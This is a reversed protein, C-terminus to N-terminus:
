KTFFLLLIVAQKIISHFDLSVEFTKIDYNMFNLFYYNQISKM